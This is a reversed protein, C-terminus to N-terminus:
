RVFNRTGVDSLRTRNAIGSTWRRSSVIAAAEEKKACVCMLSFARRVFLGSSAHSNTSASLAKQSSRWRTFRPSKCVPM